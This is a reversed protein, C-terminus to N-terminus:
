LFTEPLGAIRPGDVSVALLCNGHLLGEPSGYGQGQRQCQGRGDQGPASFRLGGARVEGFPRDGEDERVVADGHVAGGHRLVLAGGDVGGVVDDAIFIALVEGVARAVRGIGVRRLLCGGVGHDVDGLGPGIDEASGEGGPLDGHVQPLVGLGVGAGHHGEVEVAHVDGAGHGGSHDEVPDILAVGCPHVVILVAGLVIFRGIRHIGGGGPGVDDNGVARLVRDGAGVDGLDVLRLGDGEALVAGLDGVGLLEM